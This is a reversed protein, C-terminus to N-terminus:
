LAAFEFVREAFAEMEARTRVSLGDYLVDSLNNEQLVSRVVKIGQTVIFNHYELVNECTTDGVLCSSPKPIGPFIIHWISFWQKHLSLTKNVRVHLARNYEPGM